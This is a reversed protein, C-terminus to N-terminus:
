SRPHDTGQPLGPAAPASGPQGSAISITLHTLTLHQVDPTGARAGQPHVAAKEADREEEHSHHKLPWNRVLALDLLQLQFSPNTCLPHRRAKCHLVSDLLPSPAHLMHYAICLAGSRNLGKRCHVLARGGSVRAKEVFEEMAQFHAFLDYGPRDQAPFESYVLGGESYFNSGIKVTSAACNLM